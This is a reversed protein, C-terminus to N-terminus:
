NETALNFLKMANARTTSLVEETSMKKIRAIEEAIHSILLSTNRKGRYPVPALYPCDTELLINELPAYEVVEKLKKANKFTVVGGVGLYFGMNLYERAMETGYSFCHVEGGIEGIKLAKAMDLTEAAADRSHIILPLEEKRALEIQREFWKKQISHSEKDWYYDLGTEGVAVIKELKCLKELRGYIEENLDGVDDPHIGATGYVFSYKEMMAEIDGLSKVSSAANIIHSVGKETMASLLEDRDTDFAEDDYHAHSEFIMAKNIEKM